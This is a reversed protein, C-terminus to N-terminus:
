IKVRQNLSINRKQHLPRGCLTARTSIMAFSIFSIDFGPRESDSCTQCTTLYIRILVSCCLLHKDSRTEARLHQLAERGCMARVLHWVIQLLIETFLLNFTVAWQIYFVPNIEPHQSAQKSSIKVLFFLSFVQDRKYDFTESSHIKHANRQQSSKMFATIQLFLVVNCYYM